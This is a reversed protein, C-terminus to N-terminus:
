DKAVNVLFRRSGPRPIAYTEQYDPHDALIKPLDIDVADKCRRWTVDGTEFVAKSADGMRQQIRQKL